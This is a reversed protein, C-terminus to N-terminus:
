LLRIILNVPSRSRTFRGAYGRYIILRALIARAFLYCMNRASLRSFLHWLDFPQNMFDCGCFRRDLSLKACFGCTKCEAVREAAAFTEGSRKGKKKYFCTTLRIHIYQRMSGHIGYRYQVCSNCVRRNIDM